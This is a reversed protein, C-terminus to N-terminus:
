LFTIQIVFQLLACKYWGLQSSHCWASRLSWEVILLHTHKRHLIVAKIINWSESSSTTLLSCPFTLLPWGWDVAPWVAQTQPDSPMEAPRTIVAGREPRRHSRTGRRTLEEWSVPPQTHRLFRCPFYRTEELPFRTLPCGFAYIRHAYTHTHARACTQTHTHLM